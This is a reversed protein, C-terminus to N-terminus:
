DSFLRPKFSDQSSDIKTEKGGKQTPKTPSGSSPEGDVPRANPLVTRRSNVM